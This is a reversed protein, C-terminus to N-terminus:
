VTHVVVHNFYRRNYREFDLQESQDIKLVSATQILDKSWDEQESHENM